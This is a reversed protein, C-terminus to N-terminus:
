TKNYRSRYRHCVTTFLLFWSSSPSHHMFRALIFSSAAFIPILMCPHTITFSFDLYRHLIRETYVENWETRVWLAFPGLSACDYVSAKRKLFLHVHPTSMILCEDYTANPLTSYMNTAIVAMCHEVSRKRAVQGPKLAIVFVHVHRPDTIGDAM